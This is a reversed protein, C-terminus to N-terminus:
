EVDVRAGLARLTAVFKPFIGAICAADRVLTPARGALALSAAAMAIEPVGRSDIVAAELPEERGEIELGGAREECDVGFARLVEAMAVM